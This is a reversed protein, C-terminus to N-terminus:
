ISLGLRAGVVGLVAGAAIGWIPNWGTLLVLAIMATTIAAMLASQGAAEAMVLGSAFMLGVAIPALACRALRVWESAAFRKMAWGTGLALLSSPAIMALTSVVLGSLGALHFGIVSIVMVNPGPAAQAVAVLNVFTREDMLKLNEVIQRHLEPLTANVGGIASLSLLGFTTALQGLESAM